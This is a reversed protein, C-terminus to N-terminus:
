DTKAWGSKGHIIYYVYTFLFHLYYVSSDTSSNNHGPEKKRTGEMGTGTVRCTKMEKGRNRERKKQGKTRTGRHM